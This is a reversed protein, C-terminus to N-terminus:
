VRFQKKWTKKKKRCKGPLRAIHCVDPSNSAGFRNKFTQVQAQNQPKALMKQRFFIGIFHKEVGILGKKSALLCVYM